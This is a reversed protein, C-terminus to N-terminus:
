PAGAVALAVMLAPSREKWHPIGELGLAEALESSAKDPKKIGAAHATAVVQKVWKCDIGAQKLGLMITTELSARAFAEAYSWGKHRRTQALAVTNVDLRRVEQVFRDQFDKLRTGDAYSSSPAIKIPDALLLERPARVLAFYVVGAAISVGLVLRADGVTEDYRVNRGTTWASWIGVQAYTRL